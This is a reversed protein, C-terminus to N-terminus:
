LSSGGHRATKIKIKQLIKLRKKPKNTETIKRQLNIWNKNIVINAIHWIIPIVKKIINAKQKINTHDIMIDIKM